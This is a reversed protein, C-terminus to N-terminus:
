CYSEEASGAKVIPVHRQVLVSRHAFAHYNLKARLEEIHEIVRLEEIRVPIEAAALEAIHSASAIRSDSLHTQLEEKSSSQDSSTPPQNPSTFSPLQTCLAM